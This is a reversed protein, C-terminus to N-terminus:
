EGYRKWDKPMRHKGEGRWGRIYNRTDSPLDALKAGRRIWKDTNGVGWNYAAIAHEPNGNYRKLMAALYQEGFARNKQPDFLEAPRIPNVGFGPQSATAPMIGMLGAAGVRSVAKPNGSSEVYEVFRALSALDDSPTPSAPQARMEQRSVENATSQVMEAPTQRPMPEMMEM